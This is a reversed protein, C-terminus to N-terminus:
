PTQTLERFIALTGFCTAAFDTNFVQNASYYMQQHKYLKYNSKEIRPNFLIVTCTIFRCVDPIQAKQTCNWPELSAQRSPQETKEVSSQFGKMYNSASYPWFRFVLRHVTYYLCQSTNLQLDSHQGQRWKQVDWGDVTGLERSNM